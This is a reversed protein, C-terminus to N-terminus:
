GGNFEWGLRVYADPFGNAVLTAALQAYHADQKGGTVDALSTGSM